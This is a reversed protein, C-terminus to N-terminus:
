VGTGPFADNKKSLVVIQRERAIYGKMLGKYIMNALQCEVEDTDVQQKSSINVAATFEPVTVRTRRVPPADPAEPKPDEFGGAIFVKRLLNRLCIDHTRELPLYIRRKVFEDEGEKLAQDFAYLDGKKICQALPLFLKQLHPYPELLAPKPLTHSTLLHCPILYTLILEKNRMQDKHCLDLADALRKEAEIYNEELFFLVGEYYKFTVQQSKPFQSLTPMDKENAHLNKLINRSLSAQNLRFYTKFLLNIIYYIGWKKSDELPSRDMLCLSFIANLQRACDELNQNAEAEPDFDDQLTMANEDAPKSNRDKDAKIAFVRLFKGAVYLCPITWAGFGASRYGRTLSISLDKWAEYVKTWSPTGPAIVDGQVALIAGAALWYHYFVETWADLEKNSIHTERKLNRRLYEKAQHHNTAKWIMKLTDKEVAPSLSQALEYGNGTRFASGFDSFVFDM